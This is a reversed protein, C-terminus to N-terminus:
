CVVDKWWDIDDHINGIVEIDNDVLTCFENFVFTGTKYVIASIRDKKDRIIDGEYIERGNKDFVGTFQGVTMPNIIENWIGYEDLYRITLMADDKEHLLDGFIWDGDFRRKGRFKITRM